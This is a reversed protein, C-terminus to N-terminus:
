VIQDNERPFLMAQSRLVALPFAFSYVKRTRHPTLKGQAMQSHLYDLDLGLERLAARKVEDSIRPTELLNDDEGETDSTDLGQSPGPVAVPLVEDLYQSLTSGLLKGLDLYSHLPTIAVDISKLMRDFTLTVQIAAAPKIAPNSPESSADKGHRVKARWANIRFGLNVSSNTWEWVEFKPLEEVSSADQGNKPQTHTNPYQHTLNPDTILLPVILASHPGTPSPQVFFCSLDDLALNLTSLGIGNLSASSAPASASFNELHLRIYAESPHPPVLPREFFLQMPGAAVEGLPSIPPMVLLVVLGKAHVSTDFEFGSASSSTSTPNKPKHPSAPVSVSNAIALLGRVHWPRLAIALLGINVSLNLKDELRRGPPGTRLQVVLPDSTMSLIVERRIKGHAVDSQQDDTSSASETPSLKTHSKSSIDSSPSHPSTPARVQSPSPPASVFQPPPTQNRPPPSITPLPTMERSPPRSREGPALSIASRYVSSTDSSTPSPSRPPLYALSQSMSFMVEEGVSSSSSSTPSSQVTSNEATSSSTPSAPHPAVTDVESIVSQAMSSTGVSTDIPSPARIYSPSISPIPTLDEALLTVGNVTIKRIEERLNTETTALKSDSGYHIESVRLTIATNDPHIITIEIDAADFQFRSILREVLTAFLSVGAPDVESHINEDTSINPSDLGGPLRSVNETEPQSDQVISEHLMAEERPSLEDHLFSDAMSAVSEALNQENSEEPPSIHFTLHLSTL